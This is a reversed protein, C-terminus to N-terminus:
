GRKVGKSRMSFSWVVFFAMTLITGALAVLLGTPVYVYGMCEMYDPGGCGM